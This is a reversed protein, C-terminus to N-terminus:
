HASARRPNWPTQGEYPDVGGPTDWRDRGTLPDFGRYLHDFQGYEYFPCPAAYLVTPLFLPEVPRGDGRNRITRRKRPPFNRRRIEADIKYIPYTLTHDFEDDIYDYVLNRVPLIPLHTMLRDIRAGPYPFSVFGLTDCYGRYELPRNGEAM